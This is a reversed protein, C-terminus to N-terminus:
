IAPEVGLAIGEVTVRRNGAERRVFEIDEVEAFEDFVVLPSVPTAVSAETSAFLFERLFVALSAPLL